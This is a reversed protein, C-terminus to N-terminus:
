MAVVLRTYLRSGFSLEVGNGIVVGNKNEARCRYKGGDHVDQPNQYSSLYIRCVDTNIVSFM